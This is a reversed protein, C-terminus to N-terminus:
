QVEKGGWEVVTFGDRAFGAPDEPTEVEVPATLPKWVMFVRLISDPKPTITLKATNEYDTTQFTILNYANDQMRPLWYVIFENYERPTLGMKELTQQLFKETDAGAVCYGSSLDYETDDVGEWFLYSYERGDATHLMGDPEARVTWGDSYAPYTCTLEGAYDLTVTVDAPEEPYLYIVPKATCDDAGGNGRPTCGATLLITLALILCLSKKM